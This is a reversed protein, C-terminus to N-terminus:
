NLMSMFPMWRRYLDENPQRLEEWANSISGSIMAEGPHASLLGCKFKLMREYVDWGEATRKATVPINLRAAEMEEQTTLWLERACTAVKMISYWEKTSPVHMYLHPMHIDGPKPLEFLILKEIRASQRPDTM